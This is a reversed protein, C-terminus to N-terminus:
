FIAVNDCLQALKVRDKRCDFANYAYKGMNKEGGACIQRAEDVDTGRFVRACEKMPVIPLQLYRM